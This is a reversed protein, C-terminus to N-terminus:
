KKVTDKEIRIDKHIEKQMGGDDDDDDDEEMEGCGKHMKGREMMDDCCEGRMMGGRHGGMPMCCDKGGMMGPGCREMYETHHKRTMKLGGRTLSCLLALLSVVIILWSIINYFNGLGEKKTKDLLFMGATLALLSLSISILIM